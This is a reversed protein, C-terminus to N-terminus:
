TNEFAVSGTELHSDVNGAICPGDWDGLWRQSCYPVVEGKRSKRVLVKRVREDM